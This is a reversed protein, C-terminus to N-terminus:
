IAAASNDRSELLKTVEYAQTTQNNILSIAKKALTLAATENLNM